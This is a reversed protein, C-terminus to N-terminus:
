NVKRCKTRIQGNTGTLVSLNGLKVMAKAFDEYFEQANNSYTTVLSDTSGGSYLQQDSHLLGKKNVLNKFYGNDFVVHSTTDLSSLNDDDKTSSTCNSKLSTAFSSDINTENYIRNRFIM